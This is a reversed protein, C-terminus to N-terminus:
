PLYSNLFDILADEPLPKSFYYGQLIDCHMIKLLEVHAKTEVGEAVLDINLRHGLLIISDTIDRDDQDDLIDAIFSQDIKLYDIPFQKLYNLSSYGTGFDDIAIKVGLTKLDKLIVLATAADTAMSETIELTIMKPDVDHDSLITQIREVLNRQYFQRISLNISIPLIIGRKKLKQIMQAVEKIVWEGIPIILGTEEAIPIFVPPAILGRKPSNWRILAELGYISGSKTNIQPQYHLVFENQDVARRLGSEIELIGKMQVPLNEQYFQVTGRETNKAYCMAQDARKVLYEVTNGDEPYLSVGITPTNVIDIGDIKYPESMVNILGEAYHQIDAKIANPYLIIFEDGGYRYSQLSTKMFSQIRDAIQKLLLDGKSHGLTDNILKFRDLDVFLLAFSTNEGHQILQDIDKTLSIQNKLGTLHDHYAFYHLERDLRQKESMDKAICNIGQVKQDIIMPILTVNIPKLLMKKTQIVTDYEITDGATISKFYALTEKLLDPKILFHFTQGILEDRNYGTLTVTADNLESCRGTLDFTIVADANEKFLSQYAIESQKLQKKIQYTETTDHLIGVVGHIVHDNILPIGRILLQKKEGDKTLGKLELETTTGHLMQNFARTAKTHEEPTVYTLFHQGMNSDTAHKLLKLAYSNAHTLIGEKNLTFIGHSVKDFMMEKALSTLTTVDHHLHWTGIIVDGENITIKELQMMMKTDADNLLPANIKTKGEKDLVKLLNECDAHDIKLIHSLKFFELFNRDIFWQKTSESLSIFSFDESLILLGQNVQDLLSIVDTKSLSSYTQFAM